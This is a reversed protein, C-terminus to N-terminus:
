KINFGLSKLALYATWGVAMEINSEDYVFYSSHLGHSGSNGFLGFFSPVREAYDAFDEGLMLPKDLEVIRDSGWYKYATKKVEEFLIPDNVLLTGPIVEVRIETDFINAMGDAIKNIREIMFQRTKKSVTRMTALITAKAPVISHTTGSDFKCITLVVTEFPSVERSIIEQINQILHVGILISNKGKYPESGHASIGDIEIEIRDSVAFTVGSKIGYSNSQLGSWVHNGFFMSINFEEILGKEVLMKAGGGGEEAPQFVFLIRGKIEERMKNLLNAAGLLIAVHADHGCAHMKGPNKSSFPLNTTETIRIADMDARLAVTPGIDQNGIEGLVATTNYYNPYVKIDNNCLYDKILKATNKEEFRLEPDHHIKRRLNIVENEISKSLAKIKKIM